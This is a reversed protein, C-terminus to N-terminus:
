HVMILYAVFAHDNPTFLKDM